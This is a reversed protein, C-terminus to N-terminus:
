SKGKQKPVSVTYFINEFTIDGNRGDDSHGSSSVSTSMEM